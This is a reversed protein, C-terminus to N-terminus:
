WVKVDMIAFTQDIHRGAKKSCAPFIYKLCREYEQLPPRALPHPPPLTLLPSCHCFHAPLPADVDGGARGGARSCM